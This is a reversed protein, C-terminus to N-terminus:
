RGNIAGYWTGGVQVFVKLLKHGTQTPYPDAPMIESAVDLDVIVEAGASGSGYSILEVECDEYAAEAKSTMCVSAATYAHSSSWGFQVRGDVVSPVLGMDAWLISPHPTAASLTTSVTILDSESGSANRLKANITKVGDGASLVIGRLSQYKQWRSSGEDAGHYEPYFGPDLDGWFKMESVNNFGVGYDVSNVILPIARTSTSGTGGISAEIRRPGNRYLPVKVTATM